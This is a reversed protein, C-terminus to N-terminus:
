AAPGLSVGAKVGAMITVDGTSTVTLRAFPGLGPESAGVTVKECTVGISFIGLSFSYSARALDEPCKEIHDATTAPPSQDPGLSDPCTVPPPQRAEVQQLFSEAEDEWSWVESMLEYLYVEKTFDLELAEAQNIDNNAINAYIATGWRSQASWLARQANSWAVMDNHFAATQSTLFSAMAPKQQACPAGSLAALEVEATGDDGGFTANLFNNAKTQAARAKLQLNAWGGAAGDSVFKELDNIRAISIAPMGTLGSGLLASGKDTDSQAANFYDQYFQKFTDGDTIVNAMDQPFTFSPWGDAHGDSVDIVKAAPPVTETGTIDYRTLSTRRAGAFIMKAGQANQHQCMLALGLNLKAEALLPAATVAKALVTGAQKWQRLELLAFGRDNLETATESIGMPRAVKGGVQDAQAFLALADQPQGLEALVAGLDRLVGATKPATRYASVLAAVAGVPNNRALAGGADAEALAPKRDRGGNVAKVAAAGARDELKVADAVAQRVTRTGKVPKGACDLKAYYGLETQLASASPVSRGDSFAITVPKPTKPKAQAVGGAMGSALLALVTVGAGAPLQWRM